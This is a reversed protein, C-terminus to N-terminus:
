PHVRRSLVLDFRYHAAYFTDPMMHVTAVWGAKHALEVIESQDYWTGIRSSPSAMEVASIRDQVDFAKIRQRDPVNGILVREVNLFNRYLDSLFKFGDSFYSFAGYVLVRNFYLPDECADVFAEASSAILKGRTFRNFFNDSFTELFSTNPDVGVYAQLYEALFSALYGNGCGIDALIAAEPDLLLLSRIQAVILQTQALSVPVGNVTREIQQNAKLHDM